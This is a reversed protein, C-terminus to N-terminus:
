PSPSTAMGPHHAALINNMVRQRAAGGLLLIQNDFEQKPVTAEFRDPFKDLGTLRLRRTEIAESVADLSLYRWVHTDGPMLPRNKYTPMPRVTAGAGVPRSGVVPRWTRSRM